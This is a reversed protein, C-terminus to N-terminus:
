FVKRYVAPGEKTLSEPTELIAESLGVFLLGGKKLNKILTNLVKQRGPEDFYIMVNRCFIYDVQQELEIPEHLNLQKICLYSRLQSNIQYTNVGIKSFYKQAIEKDMDQYQRFTFRGMHMTKLAKKNIDSALIKFDRIGQELLSMSISYPEEGSSSAACWIHPSIKKKQTIDKKLVVFHEQERFFFTHGVTIEKLFLDVAGSDGRELLAYFHKLNLNQMGSMKLLKMKLVDVKTGHFYIGFQEYALNKYKELLIADIDGDVGPNYETSM